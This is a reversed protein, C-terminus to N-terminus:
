FSPTSSKYPSFLLWSCLNVSPDTELRPVLIPIVPGLRVIDSLRGIGLMQLMKASFGGSSEDSHLKFLNSDAHSCCAMVRDKRTLDEHATAM